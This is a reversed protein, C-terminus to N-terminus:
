PQEPNKWSGLTRRLWSNMGNKEEFLSFYLFDPRIVIILWMLGLGLFGGSFKRWIDYEDALQAELWPSIDRNDPIYRIRHVSDLKLTERVEDPYSSHSFLRTELEGTVEEFSFHVGGGQSISYVTAEIVVGEKELQELRDLHESLEVPVMLGLLLFFLIAIPSALWLLADIAVFAKRLISQLRTLM